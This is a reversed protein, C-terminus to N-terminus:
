YIYNFLQTWLYPLWKCSKKQIINLELDSDIKRKTSSLVNDFSSISTTSRVSRNRKLSIISKDINETPPCPWFHGFKVRRISQYHGSGYIYEEFYLRCLPNCIKVNSEILLYGYPNHASIQSKTRVILKDTRM